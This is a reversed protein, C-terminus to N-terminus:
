KCSGWFVAINMANSTGQMEKTLKLVEDEYKSYISMMLEEAWQLPDYTIGHRTRGEFYKDPLEHLTRNFFAENITRLEENVATHM